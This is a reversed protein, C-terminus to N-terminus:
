YNAWIENADFKYNVGVRLINETIRSNFAVATTVGPAPPPITTVTGLDLYLYEIKATWNGALRGELGGGVAWGAQTNHSSVITNVPNGNGDFAFVTGATMVEGVDIGGTVYAIADPTVTVGLRVRLTAFWELKQGDEFRAIVSPDGIVGILAPNCIQGPCV